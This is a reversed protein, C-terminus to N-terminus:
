RTHVTSLYFPPGTGVMWVSGSSWLEDKLEFLLYCTLWAVRHMAMFAAQM